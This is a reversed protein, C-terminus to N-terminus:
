LLPHCVVVIQLLPFVCLQLRYNCLSADVVINLDVFVVVAKHPYCSWRVADIAYMLWFANEFEDGKIEILRSYSADKLKRIAVYQHASSASVNENEVWLSLAYMGEVILSM